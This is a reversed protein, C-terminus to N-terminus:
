AANVVAHDAYCNNMVVHVREAENALQRVSPVWAALEATSYRYDFRERASTLSRNWRVANRGHFRVLATETTTSAVVPPVSSPFGQPEDVCTYVLGHHRLFAITSERNAPTMWTANRFEIAIRDEPLIGRLSAILAKTERGIPVWVPFQFLVLGLRRRRRLP